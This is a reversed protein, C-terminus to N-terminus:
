SSGSGGSLDALDGSSVPMVDEPTTAEASLLEDIRRAVAWASRSRSELTTSSVRPTIQLTDAHHLPRGPDLMGPEMSDFWAAAMRGSGLADALAVDDFLSSHSLSVLVQNLKCETLFREGFLGHHRTYYPMLVCVGDSQRMLERLGLPEIGWRSWLPDSVHIAPDYGVVRTGFARLLEALPKSAATMGVIGVVSGGLERGVLLGEASLVPVRRLMQLLAGVVFEAEAAASASVPRVVEIGSRTCADLDINEVGASLRGVARLDPAGEITTADLAVSPPIIVAVASAVARRFERVDQALAPVYRVPHRLSLWQLVEPDLPEVVLLDM